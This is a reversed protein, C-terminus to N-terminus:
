SKTDVMELQAARSYPSRDARRLVSSTIAASFM